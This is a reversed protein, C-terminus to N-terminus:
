FICQCRFSCDYIGVNREVIVVYLHSGKTWTVITAALLFKYCYSLGYM